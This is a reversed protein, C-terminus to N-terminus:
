SWNKHSLTVYLLVPLSRGDCSQLMENAPFPLPNILSVFYSFHRCWFLPIVVPLMFRLRIM